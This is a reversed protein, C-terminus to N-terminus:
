FGFPLFAPPLWFTVRSTSRRSASSRLRCLTHLSATPIPGCGSKPFRALTTLALPLNSTSKDRELDTELVVHGSKKPLSRGKDSALFSSQFTVAPSVTPRVGQPGSGLDCGRSLVARRCLAGRSILGPGCDRCKSTSECLEGLRRQMLMWPAQPEM